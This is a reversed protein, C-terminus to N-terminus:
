QLSKYDSNIVVGLYKEQFHVGKLYPILSSRFLKMIRKEVKRQLDKLTVLIVDYHETNLLDELKEPKM